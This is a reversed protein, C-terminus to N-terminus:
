MSLSVQQLDTTQMGCRERSLLRGEPKVLGLNKGLVNKLTAVDSIDSMELEVAENETEGTFYFSKTSMTSRAAHSLDLYIM